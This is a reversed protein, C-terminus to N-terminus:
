VWMRMTAMSPCMGKSMVPERTLGTICKTRWVRCQDMIAKRRQMRSMRMWMTAMNASMGMLMLPESTLGVIGVTTWM